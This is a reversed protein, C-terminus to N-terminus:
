PMGLALISKSPITKRLSETAATPDFPTLVNELAGAGLEQARVGREPAYQNLGLGLIDQSRDAYPMFDGMIDFAEQQLPMTPPVREGTYPTIGQGWQEGLLKTMLDLLDTQGQNLTSASGFSGGGGGGKSLAASGVMAGGGILAAAIFSM